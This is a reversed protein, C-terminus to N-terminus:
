NDEEDERPFTTLSKIIGRLTRVEQETMDARQFINRINQVMIPRKEKVRLFGRADLENELHEFLGILEAKTAPQSDKMRLESAPTDDALKFWEYAVLLVAQSLNLSTFGPNLPTKIIKSALVIDDNNLGMAEGGFIIGCLPNGSNRIEGAAEAPTVVEKTLDRDRATAAYVQSLDAIAAETTEFLKANELVIDAGSASSVARSNPWGDRPRVLRLDTLGCNLMARAVMGINEGLQPEVLIIVPANGAAAKAGAKAKAIKRNTGAM